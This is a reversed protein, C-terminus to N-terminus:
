NFDDLYKQEMSQINKIYIYKLVPINLYKIYQPFKTKIIFEMMNISGIKKETSEKIKFDVLDMHLIKEAVEKFLLEIGKDNNYIPWYLPPCIGHFNIFNKILTHIEENNEIEKLISYQISTINM